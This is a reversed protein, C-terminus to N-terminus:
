PLFPSRVHIGVYIQYQFSLARFLAELSQKVRSGFLGGCIREIALM